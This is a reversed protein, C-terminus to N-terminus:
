GEQTVNRRRFAGRSRRARAGTASELPMSTRMTLFLFRFEHDRSFEYVTPETAGALEGQKVDGVVGIVTKHITRSQLPLTIRRGIPDEDGWLLKAAGRSVLVAELDNDAVDRGRLVPIRLSAFYGPLIKRVEATPQDRPPLEARGELVVPQVSGGFLPIGDIAGAAQTGPLARV